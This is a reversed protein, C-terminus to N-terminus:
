HFDVAGFDSATEFAKRWEGYKQRFWAEPEADAKVQFEAFDQALKFAVRPGITGDCDTFNILEWFPGSEVTWAGAAHSMEKPKYGPDHEVAPYGALQALWDRWENYGGYSGARFGFVREGLLPGRPLGNGRSEFEPSNRIEITDDSASQAPYLKRYVSIDLGM